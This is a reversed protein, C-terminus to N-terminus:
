NMGGCTVIAEKHWFRTALTSVLIEIAAHQRIGDLVIIQREKCRAGAASISQAFQFFITCHLWGREEPAGCTKLANVLVTGVLRKDLVTSTDPMAYIQESEISTLYAIGIRAEGTYGALKELHM